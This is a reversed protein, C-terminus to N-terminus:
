IQLCLVTKTLKNRRVDILMYKKSLYQFFNLILYATQEHPKELFHRNVEENKKISQTINGKM